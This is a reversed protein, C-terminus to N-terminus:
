RKDRLTDIVEWLDINEQEAASLRTEVASLRAKLEAAEEELTAVRALLGPKEKLAELAQKRRNENYKNSAASM